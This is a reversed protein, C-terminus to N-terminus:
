EDSVLRNRMLAIKVFGFNKYILGLKVARALLAFFSYMRGRLDRKCFRSFDRAFIRFRVLDGELNDHSNDSFRQQLRAEFVRVSLGRERCDRIFKHDIYDLFYGEDYRYDEFIELSCAMGTNIATLIKGEFSHSDGMRKVCYDNIACPSLLGREDYIEPVFVDTNPNDSVSKKLKEFYDGPITTDDDFWVVLGKKGQLADLAHNYAKSLGKNGGMSCYEWGRQRCFESNGFDATSNDMVLVNLGQVPLLSECTKSNECKANYIVVVAYIDINSM